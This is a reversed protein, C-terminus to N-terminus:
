SPPSDDPSDMPTTAQHPQYRVLAFPTAMLTLAAAILVAVLFDVLLVAGLPGGPGKICLVDLLDRPADRELQPRGSPQADGGPAADRM